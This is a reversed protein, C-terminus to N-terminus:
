PFIFFLITGQSLHLAFLSIIKGGIHIKMHLKWIEILIFLTTLSIGNFSGAVKLLKRSNKLVYMTSQHVKSLCAFFVRNWAQTVYEDIRPGRSDRSTRKTVCIRCIWSRPHVILGNHSELPGIPSSHTLFTVAQRKRRM